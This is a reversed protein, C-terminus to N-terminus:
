YDEPYRENFDDLAVRNAGRSFNKKHADNIRSHCRICLCKLNAPRNDAKNGNVHHVHMYYRDSMEEIHTGCQECTFNHKERVKQSIEEWDMTYGFIDVDIKNSGRRGNNDDEFLSANRNHYGEVDKLLGVFENSALDRDEGMKKQCYKCMPLDDVTVESYNDDMNSVPVEETNSARYELEFSGSAIFSDITECKCIHYRPKGYRELHYKRKYLYVQREEGLEDVFFIGDGTFRFSENLEKIGVDIPNAIPKYPSAAEIHYGMDTLLSKLGQFKFIPEVDAM